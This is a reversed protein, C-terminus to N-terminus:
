VTLWRELGQAAIKLEAYKAEEGNYQVNTHPDQQMKLIFNPNPISPL